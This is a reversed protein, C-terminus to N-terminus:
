KLPPSAAYLVFALTSYTELKAKVISGTIAQRNQTGYGIVVVEDLAQSDESLVVKFTSKGKVAIEQTDFGIYSVVLTADSAVDLSFRGEVDAITGNTSSGKEVINAGIVPEGKADVIVGSVRCKQGVIRNQTVKAPRYISITRDTVDCKVGMGAFITELVRSLDTDKQNVTVKKSIDIDNDRVLISYGTKQEIDDLVKSISVNKQQISLKVDQLCENGWVSATSGASLLLSLDGIKWLDSKKKM